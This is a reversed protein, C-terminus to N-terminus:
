LLIQKLLILQMEMYEFIKIAESLNEQDYYWKAVKLIGKRAELDNPLINLIKKLQKELNKRFTQISCGMLKKLSESKTADQSDLAILIRRRCLEKILHNPDKRKVNKAYLRDKELLRDLNKKRYSQNYSKKKKWILFIIRNQAARILM